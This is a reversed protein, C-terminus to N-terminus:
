RRGGPLWEETQRDVYEKFNRTGKLLWRFGRYEMDTFIKPTLSAEYDVDELTQSISVGLAAERKFLNKIEERSLPRGAIASSEAIKRVKDEPTFQEQKFVNSQLVVNILKDVAHLIMSLLDTGGPSLKSEREGEKKGDPGHPKGKSESNKDISEKLRSIQASLASLEQIFKEEQAM